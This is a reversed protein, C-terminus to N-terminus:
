EKIIKKVFADKNTKIQLFYIGAPQSSLDIITPQNALFQQTFFKEGFVNFIKIESKEQIGTITLKGSTPNPFVDILSNLIENISNLNGQYCASDVPMFYIHGLNINENGDYITGRIITSDSTCWYNNPLYYNCCSPISDKLNYVSNNCIKNCSIINGVNLLKIGVQNDEIDCNSIVNNTGNSIFLGVNNNKIQCNYVAGTINIEIGEVSNSDISCNKISDWKPPCTNYPTILGIQNSTIICNDITTNYDLNIGTLNYKITNNIIKGSAATIGVQNSNVICNNIVTQQGSGSIGTQNNCIISHSINGGSNLAVSNNRFNCSDLNVMAYPCSIGNTNSFFSSNKLTLTDNIHSNQIAFDAYRFNCYQFLSPMIGGDLNIGSYIGAFPSPSNSTFLISDSSTGIAILSAQKLCLIANTNFKVTVGPDITLSYGSYVIVSDTIVYPSNVKTWVTNFYIGGSVNTQSNAIGWFALFLFLLKAKM